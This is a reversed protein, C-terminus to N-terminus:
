QGPRFQTEFLHPDGSHRKGAFAAARRGWERMAGSDRLEHVMMRRNFRSFGEHINYPAVHLNM